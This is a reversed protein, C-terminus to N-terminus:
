RRCALALTYLAVPEERGARAVLRGFEERAAPPLGLPGSFARWAEEESAPELAIRV